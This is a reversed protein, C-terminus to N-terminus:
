TEAGHDILEKEYTVASEYRLYGIIMGLLCAFIFPNNDIPEVYQMHVGDAMQNISEAQYQNVFAMGALSLCVFIIICGVLQKNVKILEM